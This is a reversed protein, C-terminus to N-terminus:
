REEEKAARRMAEIADQGAESLADSDHAAFAQDDATGSLADVDRDVENRRYNWQAIALVRSYAQCWVDTQLVACPHRITYVSRPLASEGDGDDDVLNEFPDDVRVGCFPCPKLPEM